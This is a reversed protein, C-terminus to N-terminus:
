PPLHQLDVITMPADTAAGVVLSLEGDREAFTARLIEHRRIIEAAARNLATRDLAGELTLTVDLSAEVGLRQLASLVDLLNAEPRNMAPDKRRARRRRRSAVSASARM